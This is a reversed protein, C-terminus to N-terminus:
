ERNGTKEFLSHFHARILQALLFAKYEKSGRADSIPSIEAMAIDISEDVLKDSIEKGTLYASTKVLYLPVPAVGGASLGAKVITDNNVQLFIATNVSAIDLHTRKSVKEFHFYDNKGPKEFEITELLESDSKELKKYGKYFERLLIKRKRGSRLDRLNIKADLALFFVSLDGIPSANVLNGAITAMNRIATSSILKSYKFFSPFAENFLASDRLDTVTVAGGLIIRNDVLEIKKLLADDNLYEADSHILEEPKQVYLDTGGAVLTKHDATKILVTPQSENQLSLLSTKVSKFYPPIIKKTIAFDVPEEGNRDGLVRTIMTAAREISKYGTCRCINGDIAAIAKEDGPEANLCYGVLSVVFGPTCFGCQTAGQKAMAKQVLNLAPEADDEAPLNIGEVTVVHKGQVNALPLLCSTMSQYRLEGKILSGILVSCAGCDGERCGIKTGTLQENYRILDLLPLGPSLETSIIKDNLLFRIM